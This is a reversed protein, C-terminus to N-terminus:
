DWGEDYGDSFAGTTEIIVEQNFINDIDVEDLIEANTQIVTDARMVLKAICLHNDSDWSIEPAEMYDIIYERGDAIVKRANCHWVLRLAEAFYSTCPFECQLSKYSVQKRVFMQGDIDEVESDFKFPPMMLPMPVVCAMFLKGDEYQFPLYNTPTVIPKSRFYLLKTYNEDLTVFRFPESIVSLPSVTKEVGNQLIKYSYGMKMHFPSDPLINVFATPLTIEPLAITQYRESTIYGRPVDQLEIELTTLTTLSYETGTNCDVLSFDVTNLENYSETLPKRQALHDLDVTAALLHMGKLFYTANFSTSYVTDQNPVIFYSQSFTSVNNPTVTGLRLEVQALQGNVFNEGVVIAAYQKEDDPAPDDPDLPTPNVYWLKGQTGTPTLTPITLNYFTFNVGDVLKYDGQYTDNFITQAAEAEIHLSTPYMTAQDDLTLMFPPLKGKEVYLTGAYSGHETIKKSYILDASNHFPVPNHLNPQIM